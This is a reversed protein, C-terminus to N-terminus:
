SSRPPLQPMVGGRAGQRVAVDLVDAEGVEDWGDFALVLAAGRADADSGWANVELARPKDVATQVVFGDDGPGDVIALTARVALQWGAVLEVAGDGDVHMPPLVATLDSPALLMVPVGTRLFRVQDAPVFPMVRDYPLPTGSRLAERTPSTV